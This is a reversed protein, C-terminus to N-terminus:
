SFRMSSKQEAGEVQARLEALKKNFADFHVRDAKDRAARIVVEEEAAQAVRETTLETLNKFDNLAQKKLDLIDYLLRLKNEKMNKYLQYKSKMVKELKLVGRYDLTDRLIEAQSNILQIPMYRTIYNAFEQIETEDIGIRKKMQEM